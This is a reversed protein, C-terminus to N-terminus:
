FPSGPLAYAGQPPDSQHSIFGAWPFMPAAAATYAPSIGSRMLAQDQAMM